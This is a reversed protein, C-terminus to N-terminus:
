SHYPKCFYSKTGLTTNTLEHLSNETGNDYTITRLLHAPLGSLAKLTALHMSLAARDKMKIVIFNRTNREVFVATVAKSQRSVVTDAEWHGIEKRNEIHGPRQGIDIRGPIETKRLAKGSIRKHRTKHSRVLCQILDRREQYIWRYISEYSTKLGPSDVPLRGSIGEPTWGDTVLHSEVYLRVRSDALRIKAHSRASREEAQKQARNGRYRVARCSPSNRRIERSVSAPSRNLSKAIFSMSEGRERGIAIEEREALTFHTYCKGKNTIYKVMVANSRTSSTNPLEMM